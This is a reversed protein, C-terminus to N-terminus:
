RAPEAVPASRAASPTRTGRAALDAPLILMAAVALALFLLVSGTTLAASVEAALHM